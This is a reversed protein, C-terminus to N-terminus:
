SVVLGRRRCRRCRKGCDRNSSGRCPESSEPEGGYSRGHGLAGLVEVDPGWETRATSVVTHLGRTLNSAGLAVVRRIQDAMIFVSYRPVSGFTTLRRHAFGSHQATRALHLALITNVRKRANKRRSRRTAKVLAQKKVRPSHKLEYQRKLAASLRRVGRLVSGYRAGGSTYRAGRGANHARIRARRTAPM